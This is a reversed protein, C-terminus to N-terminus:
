TQYFRIIKEAAGALDAAVVGPQPGVWLLANGQRLVMAADWGASRAGIIDWTHCAILCLRAPPATLKNAVHHYVSQAPKFSGVPDVSFNKEFFGSLGAKELQRSLTSLPNNTLTFLRFGALKLKELAAPVEPWAPMAAVLAGLEAIDDERVTKHRTAATMRLVEAGLVGFPAYQGSLTLSQSYLVLQAFWERMAEASGLVRHFFPTLSEIDLLTENVDFVLLPLTNM